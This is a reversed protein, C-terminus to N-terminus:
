RQCYTRTAGLLGVKVTSGKRIVYESLGTNGSFGGWDYTYGLRTWPYRNEGGYSNKQRHKFWHRHEADTGVPFDLDCRNDDIESDPCPRFLDDPRVWIEVFKTKKDEPPLGLLQKLRLDLEDAALKSCFERVEPVLTIWVDQTLKMSSGVMGDYGNWSTWSVTRVYEEGTIERWRTGRQGPLVPTLYHSIESAKAVSADAVAADYSAQLYSTCTPQQADICDITALVGASGVLLLCLRRVNGM